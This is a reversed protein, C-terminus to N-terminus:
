DACDAGGAGGFEQLGGNAPMDGMDFITEAEIPLLVSFETRGPLSDVLLLGRHDEIIQRSMGLGMGLGFRVTGHKTSFHMDFVKDLIGPDIGPGDDIVRMRVCDAGNLGEAVVDSVVQVVGSGGLSEAANVLLNTFVQGLKGPFCTVGPLQTYSREVDIGRMRHTILRLTDEMIQNIDIGVEAATDPRAYSRLSAVLEQIRRAAVEVNKVATGMSAGAEVLRWSDPNRVLTKATSVETVGARMMRQAVDREKVVEMLTRVIAREESTSRARVERADRAAELALELRRDSSLLTTADKSIFDAARLLAGVPNNLEHAIGAALEGLTAYRAQAVLEARTAELERLAAGLRQTEAELRTSLDEKELHLEEARVLRSTLAKIALVTLLESVEQDAQVMRELQDLSLRIALCETTAVSTFHAGEAEHSLSVLGIIPGSSARHALVNTGYETRRLSVEGELVLYLADVPVGQRTLRTGVPLTLRPRPGLIRDTHEVMKEIAWEQGKSLMPLFSTSEQVGRKGPYHTWKTWAASTEVDLEESWRATEARCHEAVISPTWPLSLVAALGGYDISRAIDDHALRSTLLLYRSSKLLVNETLSDIMNDVDGPPDLIIVVPVVINGITRWAAARALAEDVTRVALTSTEPLLPDLEHSLQAPNYEGPGIILLRVAKEEGIDQPVM